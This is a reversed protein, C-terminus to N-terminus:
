NKRRMWRGLLIGGGLVIGALVLPLNANRVIASALPVSALMATGIEGGSRNRRHRLWVLLMALGAASALGAAVVLSALVPSMWQSLELQAAQLAFLLSLLLLFAAAGQLIATGVRHRLERGADILAFASFLRWM